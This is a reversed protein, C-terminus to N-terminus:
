ELPTVSAEVVRWEGQENAFLAEVHFQRLESQTVAALGAGGARAAAVRGVWRLRGDSETSLDAQLTLVRVGGGRLLEGLLITRLESRDGLTSSHFHDSVHDLVRSADRGELGREMEQVAARVRAEPSSARPWLGYVLVAVALGVVAFALSRRM